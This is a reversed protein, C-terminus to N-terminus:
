RHEAQEFRTEVIANGRCRLAKIRFFESRLDNPALVSIDKAANLPVKVCRTGGSRGRGRSAWLGRADHHDIEAVRGVGDAAGLHQDLRERTCQHM